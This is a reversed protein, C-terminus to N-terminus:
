KRKNKKHIYVKQPKPPLTLTVIIGILTVNIGVLTIITGQLAVFIEVSPM